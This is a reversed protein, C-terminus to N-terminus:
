GLRGSGQSPLRRGPASLDDLDGGERLASEGARAPRARHFQGGVVAVLHRDARLRGGAIGGFFSRRGTAVAHCSRKNPGTDVATTTTLHPPLFGHVVFVPQQACKEPPQPAFAVPQTRHDTSCPRRRLTGGGIPHYKRPFPASSRDNPPLGGVLFS